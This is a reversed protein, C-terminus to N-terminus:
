IKTPINTERIPPPDPPQAETGKHHIMREASTTLRVRSVTETLKGQIKRYCSGQMNLPPISIDERVYSVPYLM